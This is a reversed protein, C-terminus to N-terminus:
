LYLRGCLVLMACWLGFIGGALSRRFWHWEAPLFVYGLVICLLTAGVLMGAMYRNEKKEVWSM